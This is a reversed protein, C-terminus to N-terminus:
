GLVLQLVTQCFQLPYYTRVYTCVEIEMPLMVYKHILHGRGSSLLKGVGAPLMFRLRRSLKENFAAAGGCLAKPVISCSDSDPQSHASFVQVDVEQQCSASPSLYTGNFLYAVQNIATSILEM